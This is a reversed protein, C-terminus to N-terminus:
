RCHLLYHKPDIIIGREEIKGGKPRVIHAWVRRAEDERYHGRVMFLTDDKDLEKPRKLGMMIKFLIKRTTDLLGLLNGIESCGLQGKRGELWEETGQILKQLEELEELTPPRDRWPKREKKPRPPQELEWPPMYELSIEDALAQLEEPTHMYRTFVRYGLKNAATKANKGSTKQAKLVERAAKQLIAKKSTDSSGSSAPVSSAKKVSKVARVPEPLAADAMECDEETEDAREEDNDEVTVSSSTTPVGALITQTLARPAPKSSTKLTGTSLVPAIPADAPVRGGFGMRKPAAAPPLNADPVAVPMLKTQHPTSSAPRSATSTKKRLPLPAVAAPRKTVFEAIDTQRRIPSAPASPDRPEWGVQM